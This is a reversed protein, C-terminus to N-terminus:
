RDGEFTFAAIEEVNRLFVRNGTVSPGTISTAGPTFVPAQFVESFGAPSANVLHLNGSGRSLVLLHPGMGILTGEYLRERWRIDGTAADM